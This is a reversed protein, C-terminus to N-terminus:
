VTALAFLCWPMVGSLSPKSWIWVSLQRISYRYACTFTHHGVGQCRCAGIAKPASSCPMGAENAFSMSSIPWQLETYALPCLFASTTYFLYLGRLPSPGVAQSFTHRSETCDTHLSISIFPLRMNAVLSVIPITNWDKLKDWQREGQNDCKCM